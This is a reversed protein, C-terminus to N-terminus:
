HSFICKVININLLWLSFLNSIYIIYANRTCVDVDKFVCSFTIFNSLILNLNLLWKSFMCVICSIWFYFSLYGPIAMNQVFKYCCAWSRTDENSALTVPTPFFKWTPNSRASVFISFWNYTLIYTADNQTFADSIRIWNNLLSTRRVRRWWWCSPLCYLKRKWWFSCGIEKSIKTKISKM